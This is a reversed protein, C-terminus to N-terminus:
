SILKNISEKKAWLSFEFSCRTTDSQIVEGGHVLDDHFVIFSGASGKLSITEINNKKEDLVPKYIGDSFVKDYKLKNHHSNPVFRFGLKSNSSNEPPYISFWFKISNCDEPMKGHGLHRFWSDSHLSTVDTFPYPRVIRFYIEPHGINNEDSIEFPGFLSKLYSFFNTGLFKKYDRYNLIRNEKPWMSKHKDLSIDLNHYNCIEDKFVINNQKLINHFHSNIINKFLNFELDDLKGVFYGNEYVEKINVYM